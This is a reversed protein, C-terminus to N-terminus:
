RTVCLTCWQDLYYNQSFTIGAPCLMVLRELRHPAYVALKMAILSGLSIGLITTSDINLADLVDLLWKAYDTSRISHSTSKGTGGPVDIAYVRFHTRYQPIEEAWMSADLFMGHLLILPPLYVEGSAIIHTQGFRTQINLEEYPTAHQILLNDYVDFMTSKM